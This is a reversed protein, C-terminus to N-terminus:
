TITLVFQLKLKTKEVLITHQIRHGFTYEGERIQSSGRLSIATNTSNEDRWWYKMLVM